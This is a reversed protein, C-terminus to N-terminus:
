TKFRRRKRQEGGDGAGEGADDSKRSRELAGRKKGAVLGQIRDAGRSLGDWDEGGYGQQQRRRQTANAGGRKRRETASERPLRMYNAEEYEQRETDHASRSTRGRGTITSGISPLATPTELTTSEVYDTLAAPAPAPRRSTSTKSDVGTTTPPATPTIRPPRYVGSTSSINKTSSPAAIASAAVSSSPPPMLSGPNPRHALDSPAGTATTTDSTGNIGRGSATVTHSKSAVTAADDAARLVKDIQYKLRTELPRVGKELYLRLEVLKSVVDNDDTITSTAPDPQSDTDEVRGHQSNQLKLLILFSLNHLYSLLLENKTSLLSISNEPPDFASHEPLSSTATKLSATLISLLDTLSQPSPVAAM